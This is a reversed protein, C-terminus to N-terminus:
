EEILGQKQWEAILTKVDDAAQEPTVEYEDCLLSALDAETFTKGAIATWLYAASENLTILKSFDLNELGQAIVVKEGCVDRLEFGKKLKM